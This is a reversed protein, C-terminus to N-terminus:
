WISFTLSPFHTTNVTARYSKRKPTVTSELEPAAPRGAVTSYGKLETEEEAPTKFWGKSLSM